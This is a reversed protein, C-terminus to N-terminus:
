NFEHLWIHYQRFFELLAYADNLEDILQPCDETYAAATTKAAKDKQIMEKTNLIFNVIWEPKRIECIDSIDPGISKYEMKHCESCHQEFLRRGEDVLSDNIPNLQIVDVPGIGGPDESLVQSPKEETNNGNCSVLTIILLVGAIDRFLKM